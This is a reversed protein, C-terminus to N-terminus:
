PKPDVIRGDGARERSVNVAGVVVRLGVGLVLLNFLMQITVALRAIDSVPAIDGYGVTAFTTTAFYLCDTKSLPETFAGDDAASLAFFTSAFILLLLPISAALAEVARLAPRRSRLISRLQFAFVVGLGVVAALFRIALPFRSREDLPWAAYLLVLAVTTGVVRVVPPGLRRLRQTAAGGGVSVHRM